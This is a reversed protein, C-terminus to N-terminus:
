GAKAAVTEDVVDVLRRLRPVADERLARELDPAGICGRWVARGALFGSAGAECALRVARPFEDAPVGSSLVVWPSALAAGLEACRSRIEEDSGRGGLPVEGKYLDAGLDGLERAAALIGASHDWDQGSRPARSVPEIISVLGAERCRRVFRRVMGRRDKASGDPRWIVLLKMAVAGQARVTHPDVEEDIVADTVVEGNGPVFRDAAAILGCGPAVAQQQVLADFCFQRDALVGSAYPTLARAAATKFETLTRDPVSRLVPGPVSGDPQPASDEAFMLRMAERQDVALMALAGSPRALTALDYPPLNM